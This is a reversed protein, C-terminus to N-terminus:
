DYIRKKKTNIRNYDDVIKDFMILHNKINLRYRKKIIIDKDANSSQSFSAILKNDNVNDIGFQKKYKSILYKEYLLRNDESKNLIPVRLNKIINNFRAPINNLYVKM